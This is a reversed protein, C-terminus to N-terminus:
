GLIRLDGSVTRITVAPGGGGFRGSVNRGSGGTSTYEIDSDVSGSVSTFALDFAAAPGVELEVSGSTTGIDMVALIAPKVRIGGSVTHLDLAGDSGSVEIRGSTTSFDGRAYSGGTVDLRGSVSSAELDELVIGELQVSVDGSVSAARIRGDFSAPITVELVLDSRLLGFVPYEVKIRLTDGDATMDLQVPGSVSRCTGALHARVQDGGVRVRIESSVTNIRITDFGGPDRTELDDIEYSEAPGIRFPLGDRFNFLDSLNGSWASSVVFVIGLVAFLIFSIACVVAIVAGVGLKGKM